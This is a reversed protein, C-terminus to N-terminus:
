QEINTLKSRCATLDNNDYEVRENREPERLQQSAHYLRCRDWFQAKPEGCQQEVAACIATHDEVALNVCGYRGCLFAWEWENHGYIPSTSHYVSRSLKGCLNGLILSPKANLPKILVDVLRKFTSMFEEEYQWPGYWTMNFSLADKTWKELFDVWENHWTVYQPRQKFLTPASFGFKDGRAESSNQFKLLMKVQELEEVHERRIYENINFYVTIGNDWFSGLGDPKPVQRGALSTKSIGSLATYEADRMHEAAPGDRKRLFYRELRSNPPKVLLNFGQEYVPHHSRLGWKVVRHENIVLVGEGLASAVAASHAAVGSRPVWPATM